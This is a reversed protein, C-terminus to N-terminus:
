HIRPLPWTPSIRRSREEIFKRSGKANQVQLETNTKNLMEVFYNAMDAARQPDTDYVSVTINGEDEVVFQVNSLLEKTTQEMKYSSGAYDYLDVLGFKAIM